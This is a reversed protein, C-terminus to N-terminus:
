RKGTSAISAEAEPTYYKPALHVSYIFTMRGLGSWSGHGM